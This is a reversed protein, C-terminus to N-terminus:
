WGASASCGSCLRWTAVSDHRTSRRTKARSARGVATFWSGTCGCILTSRRPSLIAADILRPRCSRAASARVARYHKQLEIDEMVPRHTKRLVVGNEDKEVVEEFDEEFRGTNKAMKERVEWKEIPRIIGDKGKEKETKKEMLSFNNIPGPPKYRRAGRGLVFKRWKKLWENEVMHWVSGRGLTTTDLIKAIRGDEEIFVRAVDVGLFEVLRPSFVGRTALSKHVRTVFNALETGTINGLGFTAIQTLTQAFAQYMGGIITKDPAVKGPFGPLMLLEHMLLRHLHKFQAVTRKIVHMRLCYSVLFVFKQNPAGSEFSTESDLFLISLMGCARVGSNVEIGDCQMPRNLHLIDQPMGTFLTCGEDLMAKLRQAKDVKLRTRFDKMSLYFAVLAKDHPLIPPELENFLSPVTDM